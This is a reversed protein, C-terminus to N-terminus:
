SSVVTGIIEQNAEDIVASVYGWQGNSLKVQAIDTHIVTYPEKANFKQNLINDNVTGINGKYSHYNSSHRSYVTVELDLSGM